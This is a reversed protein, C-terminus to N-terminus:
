ERVWTNKYKGVYIGTLRKVKFGFRDDKAKLTVRIAMKMLCREGSKKAYDTWKM